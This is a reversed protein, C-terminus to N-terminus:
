PKGAPLPPSAPLGAVVPRTARRLAYAAALLALGLWISPLLVGDGRSDGLLLLRVIEDGLVRGLANALVNAVGGAILLGIVVRTFRHGRWKRTLAVLLAPAAFILLLSDAALVWMAVVGDLVGTLLVGFGLGADSSTIQCLGPTTTAWGCPSFM